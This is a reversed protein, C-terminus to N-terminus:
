EFASSIFKKIVWFSIKQLPGQVLGGVGARPLGDGEEGEGGPVVHQHGVGAGGVRLRPKQQPHESIFVAVDPPHFIIKNNQKYM